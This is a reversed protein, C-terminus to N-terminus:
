CYVFLISYLKIELQTSSESSHLFLVLWSYAILFLSNNNSGELAFIRIRSISTAALDLVHTQARKSAPITPEFGEPTM